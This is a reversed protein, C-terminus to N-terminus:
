EKNQLLYLNELKKSSYKKIFSDLYNINKELYRCFKMYDHLFDM